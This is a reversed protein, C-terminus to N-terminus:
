IHELLFAGLLVKRRTDSTRKLKANIVRQRAEQKQKLAKAQKLKEQLAAITEDISTKAM